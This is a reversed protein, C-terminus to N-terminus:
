SVASFDARDYLNDSAQSIRILDDRGMFFVRQGGFTSEIRNRWADEFSASPISFRIGTDSTRMDHVASSASPDVFVDMTETYRPKAHFALAHVGGILARIGRRRLLAAFRAHDPNVPEVM